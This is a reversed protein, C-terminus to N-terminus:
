LSELRMSTRGSEPCIYFAFQPNLDGKSRNITIVEKEELNLFFNRAEAVLAEKLYKDVPKGVYKRMIEQFEKEVDVSDDTQLIKPM